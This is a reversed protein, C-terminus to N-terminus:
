AVSIRAGHLVRFVYVTMDSVTYYMLYKPFDNVPVARLWFLKKQRTEIKKGTMPFESVRQLTSDVADAFRLAIAISASERRLYGAISGVERRAKPSLEVELM